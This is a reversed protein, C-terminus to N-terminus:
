YMSCDQQVKAHIMKLMLSDAYVSIRRQRVVEKNHGGKEEDNLDYVTGQLVNAVDTELNLVKVYRDHAKWNFAPQSLM